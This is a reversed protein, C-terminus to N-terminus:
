EGERDGVVRAGQQGLQRGQDGLRVQVDGLEGEGETVETVEAWVAVMGLM